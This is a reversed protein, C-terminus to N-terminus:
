EKKLAEMQLHLEQYRKMVWANDTYPSLRKTAEQYLSCASETKGEKVLLEALAGQSNGWMVDDELQRWLQISEYLYSKAEEQLGQRMCVNGLNNMLLAKHYVDGSQHLFLSNAQEFAKKAQSWKEQHYYAVGRFMEAKVKDLDSATNSLHHSAKEFCALASAYAKLELHSLGLNNWARALYTLEDSEEWIRIAQQYHAVATKYQGLAHNILGLLNAIAAQRHEEMEINAEELITASKLCYERAQPYQRMDYHANGLYFYANATEQPFSNQALDIVTLHSQVAQDLDRNLRQLFGLQNLLKLRTRTQNPFRKHWIALTEELIPRWEVWYGRREPLNFLQTILAVTDALTEPLQLGYEVARYLNQSEEDLQGLTRDSVEFTKQQWYRINAAVGRKFNSSITM